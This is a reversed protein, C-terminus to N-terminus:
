VACKEVDKSISAMVERRMRALQDRRQNLINALDDPATNRSKDPQPKALLFPLAVKAALIRAAVPQTPDLTIRELETLLAHGRKHIEAEIHEPSPAGLVEAVAERAITVKNKSGKKRGAGPRYGGSNKSMLSGWKERIM